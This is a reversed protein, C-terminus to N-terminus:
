THGLLKVAILYLTHTEAKVVNYLPGIMFSTLLIQGNKLSGRRQTPMNQCEVLLFLLTRM